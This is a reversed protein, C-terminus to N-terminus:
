AAKEFLSDYGAPLQERLDRIGGASVFSAVTSLVARSHTLAAKPTLGERDAVRRCFTDLDDVTEAQGTHRTLADKLEQPLQAALDSPEGGALRQGLAELVTRAVRDAEARDTPGGKETYTALFQEYNM